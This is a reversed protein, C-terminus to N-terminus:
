NKLLRSPDFGDLPSQAHTMTAGSGLLALVGLWRWRRARCIANAWSTSATAFYATRLLSLM